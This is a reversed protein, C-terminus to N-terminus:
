KRGLVKLAVQEGVETAPVQALADRAQVPSYGLGVLAELADSFQTDWAGAGSSISGLKDKLGVVIKEATKPGLGSVKALVESNGSQVAQRIDDTKAKQLIGLASRPGIGSIGILLEFFELDEQNAFGYLDLVTEAVQTYTYLEVEQGLRLDNLLRDIVYVKYGVGSVTVIVFNDKKIFQSKHAIIGNLYAIM